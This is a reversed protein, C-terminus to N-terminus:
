QTDALAAIILDIDGVIEEQGIDAREAQYVIYAKNMSPTAVSLSQNYDTWSLTADPATHKIRQAVKQLDIHIM